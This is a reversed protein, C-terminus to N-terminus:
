ACPGITIAVGPSADTGGTLTTGSATIEGVASSMSINATSGTNGIITVVSGLASAQVWGTAAVLAAALSTAAEANSAGRAWGTSTGSGEAFTSGGIAVSAGALLSNPSAAITFTGTAATASAYDAQWPRQARDTSTVGDTVDVASSCNFFQDEGFAYDDSGWIIKGLSANSWTPYNNHQFTNLEYSGDLAPAALDVCLIDPDEEVSIKARRPTIYVGGFSTPDGRRFTVRTRGQDGVYTAWPTFMLLQADYLVDSNSRRDVITWCNLIGEFMLLLGTSIDIGFEGSELRKVSIPTHVEGAAIEGQYEGGRPTLDEITITHIVAGPGLDTFGNKNETALAVAESLTMPSSGDYIWYIDKGARSTPDLIM